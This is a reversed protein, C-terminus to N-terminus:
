VGHVREMHMQLERKASEYIKQSWHLLDLRLLRIDVEQEFSNVGGRDRQANLLGILKEVTAQYEQLARM